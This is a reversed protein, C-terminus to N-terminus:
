PSWVGTLEQCYLLVRQIVRVTVNLVFGPTSTCVLFRQFRRKSSLLPRMCGVISQFIVLDRCTIFVFIGQERPVTEYRSVSSVAQSGHAYGFSYSIPFDDVDDTWAASGLSVIDMGATASVHDSIVYGGLPPSNTEFSFEARHGLNPANSGPPQKELTPVRTRNPFRAIVYIFRRTEGLKIRQFDFLPLVATFSPVLGKAGFPPPSACSRRPSFREHSIGVDQVCIKAM